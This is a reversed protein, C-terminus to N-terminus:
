TSSTVEQTTNSNTPKPKKYAIRDWILRALVTVGGLSAVIILAIILSNVVGNESVAIGEKLPVCPKLLYLVVVVLLLMILKNNSFLSNKSKRSSKKKAM